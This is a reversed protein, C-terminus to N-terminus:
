ELEEGEHLTELKTDSTFANSTYSQDLGSPGPASLYEQEGNEDVQKPMGYKSIPEEVGESEENGRSGIAPQQRSRNDEQAQPVFSQVPFESLKTVSSPSVDYGLKKLDKLVINFSVTVYGNTRVRTVERGESHAVIRPDVFEPRKGSIWALFKQLSSSSEPVFMPIRRKQQGPMIPIHTAGYGRVVDNGFSDTGYCSLVLQPWGFPSSSKFTIELPFNLVIRGFDGEITSCQSVPTIGEELGSLVAWDNGYVFSQKCYVNDFAPFTAMAVMIGGIM